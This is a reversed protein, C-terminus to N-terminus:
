KVRDWMYGAEVSCQDYRLIDKRNGTSLLGCRIIDAARNWSGGVCSKNKINPRRSKAEARTVSSFKKQGFKTNSAEWM